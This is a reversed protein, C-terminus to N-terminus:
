EIPQSTSHGDEPRCITVMLTVKHLGRAAPNGPETFVCPRASLDRKQVKVRLFTRSKVNKHAYFHSKATEPM